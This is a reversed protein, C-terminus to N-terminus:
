GKKRVLALVHQGGASVQVASVSPHDLPIVATPTEVFQIDEDGLGLQGEVQRGWCYLAGEQTVAFSCHPGCSIQIVPDDESPFIVQTPESLVGPVALDKLKPDSSPIGLRGEDTEGCAFVRGDSTLFLSHQEGGAIQIVRAGGLESPHLGSVLRPILVIKETELNTVGTGTQGRSNMGWGWVTGDEDVAFSTYSGAGIAAVRRHRTGFLVRAPSTQHRELVRLRGLCGDDAIGLTYLHGQQTLLIIHHRGSALSVIKENRLEPPRLPLFQTETLGSFGINGGQSQRFAGWLRLEGKDNIAACMTDCTTIKVTRFGERELSIIPAPLHAPELTHGKADLKHSKVTEETLRGLGGDDDVGFSWITGKEDVFLSHMGASEVSELGAGPEHGFAGEEMKLTMWRNKKPKDVGSKLEKGLQGDDGNGWGVLELAPRHLAPPTPLPLFPAHIPHVAEPVPAATQATSPKRGRAPRGTRTQARGNLKSSRTVRTSSRTTNAAPTEEPDIRRRKAPM